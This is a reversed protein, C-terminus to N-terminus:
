FQLLLYYTVRVCFREKRYGNSRGFARSAFPYCVALCATQFPDTNLTIVMIIITFYRLRLIKLPLVTVDLLM